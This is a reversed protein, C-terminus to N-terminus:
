RKYIPLFGTKRLSAIDDNSRADYLLTFDECPCSNSLRGSTAAHLEFSEAAAFDDQPCEIVNAWRQVRLSLGSSLIM